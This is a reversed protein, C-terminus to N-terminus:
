NPINREQHPQLQSSQLPKKPDLSPAKNSRIKLDGGRLVVVDRKNGAGDKADGASKPLTTQRMKEAVGIIADATKIYGKDSAISTATKGEFRGETASKDIDAGLEVLFQSRKTRGLSALTMLATMGKFVGDEMVKDIDAGLKDLLLVTVLKTEKLNVAMNLPTLGKFKGGSIAADINAGKAFIKIIKGMSGGGFLAKAFEQNIKAQNDSSLAARRVESIKKIEEFKADTLFLVVPKAAEHKASATKSGANENTASTKSARDTM